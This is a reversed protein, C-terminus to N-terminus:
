LEVFETAVYELNYSLYNFFLEQHGETPYTKLLPNVQLNYDLLLNRTDTRNTVNTGFFEVLERELWSANCFVGEVSGVSSGVQSFCALIVRQSTKYDLLNYYILRSCHNLDFEWSSMNFFLRYNKLKTIDIGTVDILSYGFGNLSNKLFLAVETNIGYLLIFLQNNACKASNFLRIQKTYREFTLLSSFVNNAYGM